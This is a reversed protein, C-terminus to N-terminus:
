RDRERNRQWFWGIGGIAPFFGYHIFGDQWIDEPRWHGAAVEILETLINCDCQGGPDGADWCGRDHKIDIGYAKGRSWGREIRKRNRGLMRELQWYWDPYLDNLCEVVMAMHGGPKSAQYCGLEGRVVSGRFERLMPRDRLRFSVIVKEGERRAKAEAM